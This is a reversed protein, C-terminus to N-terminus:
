EIDLFWHAVNVRGITGTDYPISVQILVHQSGDSNTLVVNNSYYARKGSEPDYTCLYMGEDWNLGDRSTYLVFHAPNTPDLSGRGVCGSRGHLIYGGKVKGVQPNRIRKEVYSKGSKAWTVGMDYSIHYDLHYEDSENYLYCILAGDDMVELDGYANAIASPVQSVLSFTKGSDESKYLYYGDEETNIKWVGEIMVVYIIGEHVLADYIRGKKDCLQVAKSWTEGGDESRLVVPELNPEWGNVNLNRTGFLVVENEKTSVAKECSVTFPQNILADYSYPLIKTDDWTVGGDASRKYEVWGFGNHGPYADDRTGSCNPYFSMICGKKYEVLAHGLHGSRFNKEHDVYLIGESPITEPTIKCNLLM